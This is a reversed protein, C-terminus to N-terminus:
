KQRKLRDKGLISMGVHVFQQGRPCICMTMVGSSILLHGSLAMIDHGRCRFVTLGKLHTTNLGGNDKSKKMVVM